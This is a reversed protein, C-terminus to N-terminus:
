SASPWLKTSLEDCKRIMNRFDRSDDTSDDQYFAIGPAKPYREKLKILYATTKHNAGDSLWIPNSRVSMKALADRQQVLDKLHGDLQHNAQRLLKNDQILAAIKESHVDEHVYEGSNEAQFRLTENETELQLVRERLDQLTSNEGQENLPRSLLVSEVYSSVTMERKDAEAQLEVKLEPSLRFTLTAKLSQM